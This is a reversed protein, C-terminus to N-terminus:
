KGSSKREVDNLLDAVMQKITTFVYFEERGSLAPPRRAANM